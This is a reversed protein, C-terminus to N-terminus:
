GAHKQVISKLMFNVTEKIKEVENYIPTRPNSTLPAATSKKRYILEPAIPKNM